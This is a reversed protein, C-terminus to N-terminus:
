FLLLPDEVLSETKFFNLYKMLTTHVEGVPKCSNRHPHNDMPIPRLIYRRHLLNSVFTSADHYIYTIQISLAIHHM